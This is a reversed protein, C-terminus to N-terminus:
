SDARHCPVRLTRHPANGRPAHSRSCDRRGPLDVRECSRKFTGISGKAASGNSRKRMGNSLLDGKLIEGSKLRLEFHVTPSGDAGTWVKGLQVDTIPNAKFKQCVWSVWNERNRGVNYGVDKAPFRRWDDNDTWDRSYDAARIAHFLRKAAAAVAEASKATKAEMDDGSKTASAGGPKAARAGPLKTALAGGAKMARIAAATIPEAAKAAQAQIDARVSEALEGGVKKFAAIAKPEGDHYGYWGDVIKGDRGIVYSMPVATSSGRQYDQFCVKTAANSSDIINAFTVGNERLMELAIKKDDSANFGLVVLGKSSYKAHLEQLHCM